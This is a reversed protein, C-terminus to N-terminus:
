FKGARRRQKKVKKFDRKKDSSLTQMGSESSQKTKNFVSQKGKKRKETTEM